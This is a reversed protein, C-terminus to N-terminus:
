PDLTFEKVLGQGATLQSIWAYHGPELDITLYATYEKPMEQDGGEFATPLSVIMASLYAIIM